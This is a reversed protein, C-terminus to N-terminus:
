KNVVDIILEKGKGQQDEAFVKVIGGTEGFGFQKRIILNNAKVDVALGTNNEVITYFLNNENDVKVFGSLEVEVLGHASLDVLLTGEASNKNEFIYDDGIWPQYFYPTMMDIRLFFSQAVIRNRKDEDTSDFLECNLMYAKENLCALEDESLVVRFTGDQLPYIPDITLETVRSHDVLNILEVYMVSDMNASRDFASEYGCDLILRKRKSIDAEYVLDPSVVDTENTGEERQSLDLLIGGQKLRIIFESRKKEIFTITPLNLIENKSDQELVLCYFMDEFCKGDVDFSNIIYDFVLTNIGSVNVNSMYDNVVRNRLIDIDNGNMDVVAIMQKDVLETQPVRYTFITRNDSTELDAKEFAVNSINTKEIRNVESTAWVFIDILKSTIENEDKIEIWDTLASPTNDPLPLVGYVPVGLERIDAINEEAQKLDSANTDFDSILIVACPTDLETGIVEKVEDFIKETGLELVNCQKTDPPVFSYLAQRKSRLYADDAVCFDVDNLAEMESRQDITGEERSSFVYYQIAVGDIKGLLDILLYSEKVLNDDSHDFQIRNVMSGSMDIAVIVNLARENIINESFVITPVGMGVLSLIFTIIIFKITRM